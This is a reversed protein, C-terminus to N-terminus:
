GLNITQNPDTVQLNCCQPYKILTQPKCNHFCLVDGKAVITEKSNKGRNKKIIIQSFPMAKVFVELLIKKKKKKTLYVFNKIKKNKKIKQSLLM